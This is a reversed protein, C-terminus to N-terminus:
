PISWWPSDPIERITNTGCHIEGANKHLHATDIFSYGDIARDARYGIQHLRTQIVSRLSEACPHPIILHRDAVLLNVMNPLAAQARSHTGSPEYIVPIDVFDSEDLAFEVKMKERVADIRAQWILNDEFHSVLKEVTQTSCDSPIRKGLMYGFVLAGMADRPSAILVKFPREGAQAAPYPIFSLFEDVHGVYLWASDLELPTQVKQAALFNMLVTSIRREEDEIEGESGFSGSGGFYIRGLPWGELPPTVELNGFSHLSRDGDGGGIGQLLAQDPGLEVLKPFDRYYHQLAARMLVPEPSACSGGQRAPALSYGMQQLDQPFQLNGATRPTALGKTTLIQELRDVMAKSGTPEGVFVEEAPQLHHIMIWPAVRLRVRDLVRYSGLFLRRQVVELEIVGSFTATPHSLAELDLELGSIPDISPLRWLRHNGAAIGSSPGLVPNGRWFIRVFPALDQKIRLFVPRAFFGSSGRRRVVVPALDAADGPHLTSDAADARGDGDDDDLNALVIAGVEPTFTDEGPEDLQDDVCGNRDADVDLDILALRRLRDVPEFALHGRTAWRSETGYSAEFGIALRPGLHRELGVGAIGEVLETDSPEDVVFHGEELRGAPDNLSMRLGRLGLRAWPQFGVASPLDYRAALETGLFRVDATVSGRQEGEVTLPWSAEGTGGFLALELGWRDDLPLALAAGAAEGDADSRGIEVLDFRLEPTLDDVLPGLDGWRGGFLSWRLQRTPNSERGASAHGSGPTERQAAVERPQPDPLVTAASASATLALSSLAIAGVQSLRPLLQTTRM